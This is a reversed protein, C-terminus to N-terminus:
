RPKNRSKEAMASAITARATLAIKMYHFPMLDNFPKFASEGITTIEVDKNTDKLDFYNEHIKFYDPQGKIENFFPDTSDIRLCKTPYIPIIRSENSLEDPKYFNIFQLNSCHSFAFSCIAKVTTPIGIKEISKQAFYISKGDKTVLLERDIFNFYHNKPSIEISKLNNANSCWGEELITLSKPIFLTQLSSFAFANKCVMLVQSDKDFQLSNILKNNLFANEGISTIIYKNGSYYEISPIIVDGKAEPSNIVSATLRLKDLELTIGEKLLVKM